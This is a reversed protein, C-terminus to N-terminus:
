GFRSAWGEHQRLLRNRIFVIQLPGLIEAM